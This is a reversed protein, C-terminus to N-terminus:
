PPATTTSTTEGNGPPAVTTTTTTTSTTMTSSTTTTTSSTPSSPSTSTTSTPISTTTTSPPASTSTSTSSTSTSTSSTSTSGEESAETGSAAQDGVGGDTDTSATADETYPELAQLIDARVALLRVRLEATPVQQGSNELAEALGFLSEVRRRVEDPPTATTTVVLQVALSHTVCTTCEHNVSVALNEPIVAGSTGNAVIVQFATAVTTCDICSALAYSRNRQDVTADDLWLLSTEMEFLRNGDAANVAVAFNDGPRPVPPRTFPFPWPARTTGVQDAPVGVVRALVQRPTASALSAVPQPRRKVETTARIARRPSAPGPPEPGTKAIAVPGAGPLLPGARIGFGDAAAVRENAQVPAYQSGPWWSLMVFAAVTALTTTVASRALPRGEAARWARLSTRGTIRVLLYAISLPPLAVAVLSVVRVGVSALAGDDLNEGLVAYQLRLSDAATAVLRPLGLVAMVFCSALVPVVVVVWVTVIARASPTLVKSEPKGWNGPLLGLLTPRLHAFLDPVGTLDALIHYGDFRVLPLLQRLMQFLQIPVMVLLVDSRTVSWVGFTAVAFIANFYLGGLDVRLRGGRGLRYSDSVDTYFAPWVLYLAVGMAGPSAGGYRCAAAHGFEHFGASLATLAFVLLLSRPEYFTQHLATGLGEVFLVWASVGVFTVLMAVVVAPHFLSAFPATIRDTVSPRSVVFRLRLALLPSTREVVPQTGDATTVLGLPRLKENILYAVQEATLLKDTRSAVEWAIGLHDRRGDVAELVRFLLPTIQITQGDSRRVLLPPQRHGSGAMQGLLEVGRAM